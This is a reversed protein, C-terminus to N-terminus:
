QPSRSSVVAGLLLPFGLLALPLATPRLAPPRGEGYLVFADRDWILWKAVETAYPDGEPNDLWYDIWAQYVMLSWSTAMGPDQTVALIISCQNDSEFFPWAYRDEKPDGAATEDEAVWYWSQDYGMFALGGQAIMEPGLRQGCLCSLTHWMRGEMVGINLLDIISIESNGTYMGPGGHGFSIVVLPDYDELADLVPQREADEAALDYITLERIVPTVAEPADEPNNILDIIGTVAHGKAYYGNGCWHCDRPRIALLIAPDPM